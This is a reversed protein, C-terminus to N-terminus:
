ERRQPFAPGSPAAAGSREPALGPRASRLGPLLLEIDIDPFIDDDAADDDPVPGGPGALPSPAFGSPGPWASVASALVITGTGLSAGARATGSTRSLLHPPLPEALSAPPEDDEM